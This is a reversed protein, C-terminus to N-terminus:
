PASVRSLAVGAPTDKSTYTVSLTFLKSSVFFLYFTPPHNAPQLTYPFRNKLLKLVILFDAMKPKDTEYLM